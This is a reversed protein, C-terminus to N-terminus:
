VPVTSEFASGNTSLFQDFIEFFLNEISFLACVKEPISIRNGCVGNAARYVTESFLTTNQVAVMITFSQIYDTDQAM